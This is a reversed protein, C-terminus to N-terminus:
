IIPVIRKLYVCHDVIQFADWGLAGLANLEEMRQQVTMGGIRELITYEMPSNYDLPDITGPEAKPSLGFDLLWNRGTINDTNKIDTMIQGQLEDVAAKTQYTFSFLGLTYDSEEKDMRREM